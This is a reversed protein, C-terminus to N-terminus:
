TVIRYDGSNVKKTYLEKVRKYDITSGVKAHYHLDELFIHNLNLHKNPLWDINMKYVILYNSDGAIAEGERLRVYACRRNNKYTYNILIAREGWSRDVASNYSNVLYNTTGLEYDLLITAYAALMEDSIYNIVKVSCNFNKGDVKATIVAQGVKKGVVIGSSNVTAIDNDSSYWEVKKNTGLVELTVNGGKPLELETKNIMIYNVTISKNASSSYITTEEIKKYAKVKFYYKKNEYLEKKTFTTKTTSGVKKYDGSANKMYIVYGTAGTIKNWSLTAKGSGATVKVTPTAPKTATTITKSSAAWLTEGDAKTYAKVAFKYTTGAKLNKVTYSTGTLTKLTKYKGTSSNYQYVRYGTAGTVKKWSLKISTTSQTPTIKSTKGPLIQYSVKTEGLYDGMFVVRYTHTGVSTRDEPLEVTYDVGKSLVKGDSTKITLKPTKTKGNYTYKETSLIFDKPYGFSTRYFEKNCDCCVTVYYGNNSTSARIVKKVVTHGKISIGREFENGCLICYSKEIGSENCTANKITEWEIFEHDLKELKEVYSDGCVCMFTIEGSRWCTAKELVISEYFHTHKTNDDIYMNCYDCINDSEFDSHECTLTTSSYYHVGENASASMAFLMIMILTAFSLGLKKM